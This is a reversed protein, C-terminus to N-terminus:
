KVEEMVLKNAIKIAEDALEKSIIGEDVLHKLKEADIIERKRDREIVDIELDLYRAFKPYVEVPTNINIYVGKQIGDKNFYKHVVTWGNPSIKTIAYDDKEIAGGIGDFRGGEMLRRRIIVENADAKEIIGKMVVDRNGLKKHIIEYQQKEKPGERHLVTNLRDIVFNNDLGNLSEAFDALLSYGGSKLFHHGVITPSLGERIKDLKQKTSPGFDIFYNCSGPKILSPEATQEFKEKLVKEEQALLNLEETLEADPKGEALSKWLLGWGKIGSNKGLEVLRKIESPSQIHKSVKTFGDKILIVNNGFLRLQTSLIKKSGIIGKVQALVREGERLFGWYNQLNLVGEEGGIDVIINKSENVIKKIKGAYIAGAEVKKIAIDSFHKRLKEVVQEAGYGNITIGNLDEKDYILIDASGEADKTNLRESVAKSPSVIDFGAESLLHTLATAYIGRIKIKM